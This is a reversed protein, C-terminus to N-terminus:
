RYYSCVCLKFYLRFSDILYGHNNGNCCLDVDNHQALAVGVTAGAGNIVNFVGPPMGAEVALEALRSAFRPSFESPKLVLSNGMALAPGVKTAALSLPYNWGVIAGVVGVPKRVQYVLNPGPGDSYASSYLKDAGEAAVRIAEVADPIDGLLVNNIPKGVDLSEYLALEEKHTEILDALKFLVVKRQHVSIRSWRGDDLAIKANAVARDVDAEEGSGFQYLLKGDRPSYKSILDGALKDESYRGDIFNRIRLDADKAKMLWNTTSM